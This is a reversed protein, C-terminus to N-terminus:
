EVIEESQPGTTLYILGFKREQDHFAEDGAHVAPDGALRKGIYEALHVRNQGPSQGVQILYPSREAYYDPQFGGGALGINLIGQAALEDAFADTLLPGEWVAFPQIEQAIKVADARAAVEDIANGTGEYVILEVKRGYTEYFEEFYPLFAEYTE